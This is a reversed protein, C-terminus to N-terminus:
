DITEVEINGPKLRVDRIVGYIRGKGFGVKVAAQISVQATDM